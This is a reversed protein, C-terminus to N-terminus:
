HYFSIIQQLKVKIIRIHANNPGLGRPTHTGKWRVAAAATIGKNDKYILM